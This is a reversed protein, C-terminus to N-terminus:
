LFEEMYTQSKHERKEPAARIEIQIPEISVKSFYDPKNKSQLNNSIYRYWFFLLSKVTDNRLTEQKRFKFELDRQQEKRLFSYGNSSFAQAFNIILRLDGWIKRVYIYAARHFYFTKGRDPYTWIVKRKDYEESRNTYSKVYKARTRKLNNTDYEIFSWKSEGKYVRRLGINKLIDKLLINCYRIPFVPNEKELIEFSTNQIDTIIRDKFPLPDLTIIRGGKLWLFPPAGSLNKWIQDKKNFDTSFDYIKSKLDFNFTNITYETKRRIPRSFRHIIKFIKDFETKYLNNPTNRMEEILEKMKSLDLVHLDISRFFDAFILSSYNLLDLNNSRKFFNKQEVGDMWREVNKQNNSTLLPSWIKKSYERMVIILGQYPNKKYEKSKVYESFYKMLEKFFNFEYPSEKANKIEALFLKNDRQRVLIFDELGGDYSSDGTILYGKIKLFERAYRKYIEATKHLAEREKGYVTIPM